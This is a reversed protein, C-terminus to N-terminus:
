KMISYVLRYKAYRKNGKFDELDIRLEYTNNQTLAHINALGSVVVVVINYQFM